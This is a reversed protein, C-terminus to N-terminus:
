ILHAAYLFLPISIAIAIFSGVVLMIVFDIIDESTRLFIGTAVGILLMLMGECLILIQGLTMTSM